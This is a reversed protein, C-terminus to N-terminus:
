GDPRLICQDRVKLHLRLQGRSDKFKYLGWRRLHGQRFIYGPEPVGSWIQLRRDLLLPFNVGEKQGMHSQELGLASVLPLM